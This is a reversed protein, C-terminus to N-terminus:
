RDETNSLAQGWAEIATQLDEDRGATGGSTQAAFSLKNGAERLEDESKRLAELDNVARALHKEGDFMQFGLKGAARHIPGVPLRYSTVKEPDSEDACEPQAKATIEAFIDRYLAGSKRLTIIAAAAGAMKKRAWPEFPTRRRDDLLHAVLADLETSLTM